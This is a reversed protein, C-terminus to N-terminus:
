IKASGSSQSGRKSRRAVKKETQRSTEKKKGIKMIYTKVAPPKDVFKTDNKFNNSTMGFVM